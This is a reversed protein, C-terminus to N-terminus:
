LILLSTLALLNLGAVPVSTVRPSADSVNVMGADAVSSTLPVSSKAPEVMVPNVIGDPCVSDTALEPSISMAEPAVRSTLPVMSTVPAVTVPNDAPFTNCTTYADSIPVSVVVVDVEKISVAVVADIVQEDVEL